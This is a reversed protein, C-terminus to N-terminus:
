AVFSMMHFNVFCFQIHCLILCGLYIGILFTDNEVFEYFEETLTLNTLDANKCVICLLTPLFYPSFFISILFHKSSKQLVGLETNQLAINCICKSM